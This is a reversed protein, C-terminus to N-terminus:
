QGTTKKPQSEAARQRQQSQLFQISEQTPVLMIQTLTQDNSKELTSIIAELPIVEIKVTSAVQPRQQKFQNVVKNLQGQEFFFPIVKQNNQQVTLYGNEKGGRAVFLPVGGQYPQRQGNTSSIKKASEVETKMPVYAFNLADKKKANSQALKYVEALSVPLVRVKKALQPNEKQLQAVFNNADTQSIFVGAVKKGDTESAVLPAGQEDAITFVPVPALKQLIQKEPLALAPLNQGPLVGLVTTGLIGLTASWSILSRIM